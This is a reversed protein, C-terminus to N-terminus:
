SSLKLGSYATEVSELGTILPMRLISHQQGQIYTRREDCERNIQEVCKSWINVMSMLLLTNFLIIDEAKRNRGFCTKM